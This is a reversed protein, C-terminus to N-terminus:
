ELITTLKEIAEQIHHSGEDASTAFLLLFVRIGKISFPFLKLEEQEGLCIKLTAPVSSSFLQDAKELTKGCQSAFMALVEGPLPTNYASLSLGDADALLAGTCDDNQCLSSLVQELRHQRSQVKVYDIGKLSSALSTLEDESFLRSSGPSTWPKTPPANKRQSRESELLAAISDGLDFFDTKKM